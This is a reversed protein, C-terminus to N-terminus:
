ATPAKSSIPHLARNWRVAIGAGRMVRLFWVTSLVIGGCTLLTSVLMREIVFSRLSVEVLLWMVFGANVALVAFWLLSLRLFFRRLFPRSMMDPDLPCFDNALREALPRRSIVSLLFLVAVLATGLTPQAFYIFSSGTAFSVATRLSILVISLLLLGPVRERRALRRAFALYSWALAAIIAGRFGATVLVVYFLVAPGITSEILSPLAHRVFARPHPLHFTPAHPHWHGHSQERARHGEEVEVQESSLSETREQAVSDTGESAMPDSRDSGAIAPAEDVAGSVDGRKHWLREIVAV